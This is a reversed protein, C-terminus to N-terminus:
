AQALPPKPAEERMTQCFERMASALLDIQRGLVPFVDDYKAYFSEIVVCVGVQVIYFKAAKYDSNLKMIVKSARETEEESELEWFFPVMLRFFAEDKENSFLVFHIREHKFTVDGDKDIEPRYGQETLWNIYGETKTM